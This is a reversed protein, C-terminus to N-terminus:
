GREETTSDPGSAEAAMQVSRLREGDRVGSFLGLDLGGEATDSRKLVSVDGTSEMVVALVQDPHAVGALRLKSKLDEETMRARDLNASIVDPGAMLLLPKNDVMRAVFGTHRRLRSILYQIGFLVILGMIGQVLPPSKTLITAALLSGMAVTIAFDFSSMKSFSRLGAIRTLALLVLYIGLGSLAVMLLATGTTTIWAWDIM